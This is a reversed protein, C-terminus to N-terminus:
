LLLLGSPHQASGLVLGHRVLQGGLHVLDDVALGGAELESEEAGEVLTLVEFKDEVRPLRAMTAAQDGPLIAAVRAHRQSLHPQPEDVEKELGRIVNRQQQWM